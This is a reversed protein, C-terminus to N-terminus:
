SISLARVGLCEVCVCVDSSLTCVGLCEVCM